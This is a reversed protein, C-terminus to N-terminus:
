QSRLWKKMANNVRGGVSYIEDDFALRLRADAGPDSIKLLALISPVTAYSHELVTGRWAASLRGMLRTVDERPLLEGRTILNQTAMKQSLALDRRERLLAPLDAAAVPPAPTKAAPGGGPPTPDAKIRPQTDRVFREIEKRSMKVADSCPCELIVKAEAAQKSDLPGFEKNLGGIIRGVMAGLERQEAALLEDFYALASERSVYRGRLVDSALEAKEVAAKLKALAADTPPKGGARGGPRQTQNTLYGQILPHNIDVLKMRRHSGPTTPVPSGLAEQKRLFQSVAAPGVGARRALERLNILEPKQKKM